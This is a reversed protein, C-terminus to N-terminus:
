LAKSGRHNGISFNLSGLTLSVFIYCVVEDACALLKSLELALNYEKITMSMELLTPLDRRYALHASSTRSAVLYFNQLGDPKPKQDGGNKMGISCECWEKHDVYMLFDIEILTEHPLPYDPLSNHTSVKVLNSCRRASEHGEVPDLLQSLYSYYLDHLSEDISEKKQLKHLCARKVQWPQVDPYASVCLNKIM